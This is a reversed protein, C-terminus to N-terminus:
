ADGEPTRARELRARLADEDLDGAQGDAAEIREAPGELATFLLATLGAATGGEAWVPGRSQVLWPRGEGDVIRRETSTLAAAGALREELEAEELAELGEGPALAARRDLRDDAAPEGGELPLFYALGWGSAGRWAETVKWARGGASLERRERGGAPGASV